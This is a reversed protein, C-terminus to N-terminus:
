KEDHKFDLLQKAPVHHRMQSLRPLRHGREVASHELALRCDRKLGLGAFVEREGETCFGMVREVGELPSFGIDAKPVLRVNQAGPRIDAEPPLASMPPTALQGLTVRSM